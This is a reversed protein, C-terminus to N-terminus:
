SSLKIHLLQLLWVLQQDPQLFVYSYVMLIPPPFPRSGHKSSGTGARIADAFPWLYLEHMTKDDLNSSIAETINYGRPVSEDVQRFHEQENLIYHKTCAIVGADQIGQVTPAILQGTL